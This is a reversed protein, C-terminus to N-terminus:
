DITQARQNSSKNHRNFRPHLRYRSYAYVHKDSTRQTRDLLFSFRDFLEKIDTLEALLSEEFVSKYDGHTYWLGLTEAVAAVEHFSHYGKSIMISYAAFFALNVGERTLNKGGGLWTMAIIYSGMGGSIGGILPMDLRHMAMSAADKPSNTKDMPRWLGVGTIDYFPPALLDEVYTLYPNFVDVTRNSRVAWIGSYSGSLNNSIDLPAININGKTQRTQRSVSPKGSEEQNFWGPTIARKYKAWDKLMFKILSSHCHLQLNEHSLGKSYKHPRTVFDAFNYIATLKEEFTDEFNDERFVFKFYSL